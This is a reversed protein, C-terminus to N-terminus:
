AAMPEGVENWTALIARAQKVDQAMQQKLDALSAFARDDRLKRLLQVEVTHEYLECTPPSLLHVECRAEGDGLTPRTGIYLLGTSRDGNWFAHVLYIGDPPIIIRSGIAVNATPYGLERGLGDGHVVRGVLLPPHGLLATASEIMGEALLRRIRTSSVLSGDVVQSPVSAVFIKKPECIERLKAIDGSRGRGFRFRDGVVIARANLRGIITDSVFREATIDSVDAFRVREVRDVYRLLIKVKIDEPILLGRKSGSTEFRPPLMFSYAVRELDLRDESAIENVRKLIAVHGRHVGDFTGICVVSGNKCKEDM